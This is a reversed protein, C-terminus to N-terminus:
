GNYKGKELKGVLTSIEEQEKRNIDKMTIVNAGLNPMNLLLYDIAFKVEETQTEKRLMDILLPYHESNVGKLHLKVLGKEWAGFKEKKENVWDVFSIM